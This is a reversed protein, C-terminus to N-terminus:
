MPSCLCHDPSADSSLAAHECRRGSGAMRQQRQTPAQLLLLGCCSCASRAAPALPSLSPPLSLPRSTPSLSRFHVLCPASAHLLPSSRLPGATRTAPLTRLSAALSPPLSCPRSCSCSCASPREVVRGRGSHGRGYMTHLLPREGQVDAMQTERCSAGTICRSAGTICGHHM